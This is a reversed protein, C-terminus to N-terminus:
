FSIVFHFFFASLDKFSICYIRPQHRIWDEPKDASEEHGAISHGLSVEGWAGQRSPGTWGCRTSPELCVRLAEQHGIRKSQPGDPHSDGSPGAQSGGGLDLCSLPM